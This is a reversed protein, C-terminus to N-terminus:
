EIGIIRDGADLWARKAKQWAQYAQWVQAHSYMPDELVREYVQRLRKEDQAKRRWDQYLYNSDLNAM